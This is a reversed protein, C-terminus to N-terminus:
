KKSSTKGSFMGADYDGPAKTQTTGFKSNSQEVYGNGLSTFSINPDSRSFATAGAPAGFVSGIAGYGSGVGFAPANYNPAPIGSFMGGFGGGGLNFMGRYADRVGSLIPVRGMGQMNSRINGMIQNRAPGLAAGVVAGFPGGTLAGMLAGKAVAERAQRGPTKPAEPFGMTPTAPVTEDFGAMPAVLSAPDIGALSPGRRGQSASVVENAQQRTMTDITPPAMLSSQRGPVAQVTTRDVAPPSISVAGAGRAGVGPVASATANVKAPHAEPAMRSQGHSSYANIVAQEAPTRYGQVESAARAGVAPSNPAYAPREAPTPPATRPTVRYPGANLMDGIIPRAYEPVDEIDVGAYPNRGPGWVAPNRRTDMHINGSPYLGIGKANGKVIGAELLAGRQAETMGATALDVARGSMHQSRSAGGARANRSPSRYGSNVGVDGFGARTLEGMLTQTTPHLGAVDYSSIPTGRENPVLNALGKGPEITRSAKSPASTPVPAVQPLSISPATKPPVLDAYPNTIPQLNPAVMAPQNAKSPTVFGQATRISRGQPDSFYVHSGTKTEETLGSPLNGKAAPTAYFTAGHVPGHTQVDDWAQEAINRLGETGAPLAKGYANFESPVSVVDEPTVGLKDARNQIVSAIALM